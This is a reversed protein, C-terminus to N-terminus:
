KDIWSFTADGKKNVQSNKITNSKPLTSATNRLNKVTAVVHPYNTGCYKAHQTSLDNCLLFKGFCYRDAFDSCPRLEVCEM